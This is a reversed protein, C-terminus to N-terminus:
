CFDVIGAFSKCQTATTPVKIKQIVELRSHLPKM